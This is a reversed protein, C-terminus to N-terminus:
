KSLTQPWKVIEIMMSYGADVVRGKRMPSMLHLALCDRLRNKTSTIFKADKESLKLYKQAAFVNAANTRAMKQDHWTM